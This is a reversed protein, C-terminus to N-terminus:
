CWHNRWNVGSVCEKKEATEQKRHYGNVVDVPDSGACVGWCCVWGWWWLQLGLLITLRWDSSILIIIIISLLILTYLLVCYVGSKNKQLVIVKNQCLIVIINKKKFFTNQKVVFQFPEFPYFSKLSHASILIVRPMKDRM